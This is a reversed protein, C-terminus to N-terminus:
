RSTKDRRRGIEILVLLVVGALFVASGLLRDSRSLAANPLVSSANLALGLLLVAMLRWEGPSRSPFASRWIRGSRRAWVSWDATENEIATL